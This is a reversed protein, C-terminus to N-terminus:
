EVNFTPHPGVTELFWPAYKTKFSVLMGLITLYVFGSLCIWISLDLMVGM